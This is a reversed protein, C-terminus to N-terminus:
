ESLSLHRESDHIKSSAVEERKREEQECRKKLVGKRVYDSNNGMTLSSLINRDANHEDRM